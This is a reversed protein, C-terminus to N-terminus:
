KAAERLLPCESESLPRFADKGEITGLIKYADQPSKSEAPTKVQALYMKVLTRGDPRIAVNDNFFDSVPLERMKAAVKDAETTGAAQVAKLYHLAASYAGAHTMTPYKGKLADRFRKSWARTKDDLDWYFSETVVLGQAAKIGLAEIDPLLVLLGALQQGGQPLGFEAAQKLANVTDAGASAFAVVDAKSAQAQLLFSSFDNTGLPFRARGLVKGGSAEVLASAEQELVRGFAYDVTLFFWTKKGQGLVARATGNSLAYTDYSFHFGYPSCAKGTFDSSGPDTILFIRKQDRAVGQIALGVASTSGGVIAEVGEWEYWKRALASGVDPKNLTDASIVEIPRGLVKGGFDEVALKVGIVDGEGDYDSLPGSMDSMVGIKLAQSHQTKSGQAKAPAIALMAALVGFTIAKMETEGSRGNVACDAAAGGSLRSFEM